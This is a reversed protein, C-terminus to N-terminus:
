EPTNCFTQRHHSIRVMPFGWTISRGTGSKAEAFGGPRKWRESEHASEVTRTQRAAPNSAGGHNLGRMWKCHLLRRFMGASLMASNAACREYLNPRRVARAVSCCLGLASQSAKRWSPKYRHPNLVRDATQGQSSHSTVAYGHDLHPNKNGRRFQTVRGSDLRLRIGGDDNIQEINGLEGIRLELSEIPRM